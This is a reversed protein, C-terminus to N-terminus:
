RVLVIRLGGRELGLLHGLLDALLGGRLLLLHLSALELPERCLQAVQLLDVLAKLLDRARLDWLGRLWGLRLHLHLGSGLGLDSGKDVRDRLLLGGDLQSLRLNLGLQLLLQLRLGLKRHLLM